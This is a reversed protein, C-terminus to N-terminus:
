HTFEFSKILLIILLMISVTVYALKNESPICYSTKYSIGHCARICTCQLHKTKKKKPKTSIHKLSKMQLGKQMTLLLLFQCINSQSSTSHKHIVNWLYKKFFRWLWFWLISVQWCSGNPIISIALDIYMLTMIDRELM